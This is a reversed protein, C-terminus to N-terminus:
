STQSQYLAPVDDLRDPWCSEIVSFLTAARELTEELTGSSDLVVDALALRQQDTAQSGVRNSAEEESFGRFDQLRQARIAAPANVVIVLDFEETSRAEQLLPVDYIIIRGPDSSAEEVARDYLKRVEPHVISNLAERDDQHSFVRSGLARRNLSGDSELVESGFRAVIKELAPTGPEVAQRALVDADIVTAGRQAFLATVSSKGAAVGGTVAIVPM